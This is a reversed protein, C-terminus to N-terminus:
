GHQRDHGPPQRERDHHLGGNRIKSSPPRSYYAGEPVAGARTMVLGARERRNHSSRRRPDNPRPSFEWEQYRVARTRPRPTVRWSQRHRFQKKAYEPTLSVFAHVSPEKSVSQELAEEVAEMVSVERSRIKKGLELATLNMLSM